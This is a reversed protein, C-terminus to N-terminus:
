RRRARAATLVCFKVAACFCTVSANRRSGSFLSARTKDAWSLRLFLSRAVARAVRSRKSAAPFDSWGPFLADAADIVGNGDFDQEKILHQFDTCEQNPSIAVPWNVFDRLGYLQIKAFAEDAVVAGITRETSMSTLKVGVPFITAVMVLGIAMIGTAILM